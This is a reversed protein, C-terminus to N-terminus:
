SLIKQYVSWTEHAATNWSFQKVREFGKQVLEQRILLNKKVSVMAQALARQDRPDVLIAANGAVEPLSSCNSTIVPIGFGMAELVPLGFGEDFSPYIFALAKKYLYALAEDSVQGLFDIQTKHRFPELLNDYDSQWGPAGVIKLTMGKFENELGAEFARILGLVNKGRELRGVYLFFPAEKKEARRPPLSDREEGARFDQSEIEIPIAEYIVRIKKPSIGITQLIENKTSNSVAIVGDARRVSFPVM